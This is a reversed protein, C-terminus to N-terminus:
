FYVSKSDGVSPDLFKIKVSILQLIVDDFRINPWRSDSSSSYGLQFYEILVHTVVM